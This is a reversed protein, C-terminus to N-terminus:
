MIGRMLHLGGPSYLGPCSYFPFSVILYGNLTCLCVFGYTGCVILVTHHGNPPDPARPFEVEVQSIGPPPLFGHRRWKYQASIWLLLFTFQHCLSLLFMWLLVMRWIEVEPIDPMRGNLRASTVRVLRLNDDSDSVPVETNDGIMTHAEDQSPPIWPPKRESSMMAMAMAMADTYRVLLCELLRNYEGYIKLQALM